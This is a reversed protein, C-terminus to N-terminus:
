QPEIGTVSKKSSGSLPRKKRRFETKGSSRRQMSPKWSPPWLGTTVEKMQGQSKPYEELFQQVKDRSILDSERNLVGPIHTAKVLIQFSMCTLTLDRLLQMTSELHSSLKNISNVVALNDSRLVVIRGGLCPAFVKFAISIAFLELQYIMRNAVLDSPPSFWNTETWSKGFWQGMVPLYCGFGLTDNGAADAKIEVPSNFRGLRDLFPVTHIYDINSELLTKFM